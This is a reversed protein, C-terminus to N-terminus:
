SIIQTYSASELFSPGVTRSTTIGTRELVQYPESPSPAIVHLLDKGKGAEPLMPLNAVNELFYINMGLLRHHVDFHQSQGYDM